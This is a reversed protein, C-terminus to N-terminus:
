YPCSTHLVTTMKYDDGVPARTRPRQNSSNLMVHTSVPHVCASLVHGARGVFGEGMVQLGGGIQGIRFM